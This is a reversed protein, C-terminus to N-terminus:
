SNQINIKIRSHQHVPLKQRIEQLYNLNIESVLFGVKDDLQSIVKGWPDVIMSHGYTIRNLSHTGTQAAAVFYCLNEIARARILSEWHAQGTPVTFAAPLIFIEAGQRSLEQFLEPFRIDYCVALGIKGIPTEALVIKNGPLFTRSEQYHENKNLKADFLHIKDYRSICQGQSNYILSSSYVKNPELSSIPITGGIIWIGYKKAQTALFDQLPGDGFPEKAVLCNGMLAFNEPLVVIQAAHSVANQILQKAQVLNVVVNDNSNMQIIAIKNM